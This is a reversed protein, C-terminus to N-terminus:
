GIGEDKKNGSFSLILVCATFLKGQEPYGLLRCVVRANANYFDDDCVTGWHNDYCLELRGGNASGGSLRM